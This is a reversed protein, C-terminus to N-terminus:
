PKGYWVHRIESKTAACRKRSDIMAFIQLMLPMGERGAGHKWALEMWNDLMIGEPQADVVEIVAAMFAEESPPGLVESTCWRACVDHMTHDELEEIRKSLCVYPDLQDVQGPTLLAGSSSGTGVNEQSVSAALM